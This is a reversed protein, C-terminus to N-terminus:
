LSHPQPSTPAHLNRKRHFLVRVPELTACRMEIPELKVDFSERSFRLSSNSYSSISVDLTNKCVDIGLIGDIM